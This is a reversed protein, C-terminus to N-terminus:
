DEVVGEVVQPKQEKEDTLDEVKQTVVNIFAKAYLFVIDNIVKLLAVKVVPNSLVKGVVQKM